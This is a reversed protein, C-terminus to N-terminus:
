RRLWREPDYNIGKEDSVIFELQGIDGVQGLIQSTHVKEGKQVSVTSL